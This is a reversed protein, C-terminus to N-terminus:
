YVNCCRKTTEVDFSVESAHAQQKLNRFYAIVVDSVKVECESDSSRTGEKYADCDDGGGAMFVTLSVTYVKEDEIEKGHQLLSLVRQGKPKKADFNLQWGSSVHPFAGSAAPMYQLQQELAQRVFRGKLKLQVCERPFPLEQLVDQVTLRHGEDYQKDARLFGGNILGIDSKYYAQMTDAVMYGFTCGSTRAITTTSDLKTSGTLACLVEDGGFSAHEKEYAKIVAVVEDDMASNCNDILSYSPFFVMKGQATFTVNLDVVALAEANQGSKVILTHGEKWVMPTHDHGGLLLDIGQVQNAIAKDKIFSVHTLGIIIQAGQKKLKAVCRKSAEVVDEFVVSDGPYSLRPTMETCVGFMGVLVERSKGSHTLKMRRVEVDKVGPLLGKSKVDLVNAGLWRFNSETIRSQLIERGYDFEHNGLVVYDFHLMNMADVMAKGQSSVALPFGGLFDGNLSFICNDGREYDKMLTALKAISEISYVDNVFMFRVTSSGQRFGLPRIDVTETKRPTQITRPVTLHVAPAPSSLSLNTPVTAALGRKATVSKVWLAACAFALASVGVVLAQSTISHEKRSLM